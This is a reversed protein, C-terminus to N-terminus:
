SFKRLRIMTILFVLMSILVVVFSIRVTNWEMALDEEQGHFIDTLALASLFLCLLSLICLSISLKTMAQM